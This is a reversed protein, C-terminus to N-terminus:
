GRIEAALAATADGGHPLSEWPPLVGDNEMRPIIHLHFHRVTQGAAAGNNQMLNIGECGTAAKIKVALAQALPMLKAVSDADLTFLDDAHRKPVILAHGMSAPAIDLFALFDDDEYIKHSPIEGAAIKCFICDSM